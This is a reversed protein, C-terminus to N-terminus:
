RHHKPVKSVMSVNRDSDKLFYPSELVYFRIIKMFFAMNQGNQVSRALDRPSVQGM